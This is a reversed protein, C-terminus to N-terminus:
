GDDQPLDKVARRVGRQANKAVAAWTGGKGRDLAEVQEEKAECVTFHDWVNADLKSMAGTIHGKLSEPDKNLLQHVELGIKEKQRNLIRQLTQKDMVRESEIIQVRKSSIVQQSAQEYHGLLGRSSEINSKARSHVVFATPKSISFHQLGREDIETQDQQADRIIRILTDKLANERKTSSSPDTPTMWSTSVIRGYVGLVKGELLKALKQKEEEVTDKLNSVTESSRNAPEKAAAM